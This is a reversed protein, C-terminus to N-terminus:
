RCSAPALTTARTLMLGRITAPGVVIGLTSFEQARTEVAIGIESAIPTYLDVSEDATSVTVILAYRADRDYRGLHSREKWWGTVPYVAVEGCSAADAATGTWWDSRISGRARVDTGITWKTRPCLYPPQM